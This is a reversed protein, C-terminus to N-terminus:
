FRRARGNAKTANGKAYGRAVTREVDDLVDSIYEDGQDGEAPYEGLGILQGRLFNALALRAVIIEATHANVPDNYFVRELEDVADHLHKKVSAVRAADAPNRRRMM